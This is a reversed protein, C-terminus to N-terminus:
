AAGDDRRYFHQINFYLRCSIVCRRLILDLFRSGYRKDDANRSAAHSRQMTSEDDIRYDEMQM